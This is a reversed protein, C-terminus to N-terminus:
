IVFEVVVLRRSDGWVISLQGIEVSGNAQKNQKHKKKNHYIFYLLLSIILRVNVCYM